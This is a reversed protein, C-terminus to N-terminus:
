DDDGAAGSIVRDELRTLRSLVDQVRRNLGDHRLTAERRMSQVVGMLRGLRYAVSALAVLATLGVAGLGLLSAVITPDNITM